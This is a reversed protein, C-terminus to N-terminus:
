SGPPCLVIRVRLGDPTQHTFKFPLFIYLSYNNIPFEPVVAFISHLFLSIERRPPSTHSHPWAFFAYCPESPPLSAGLSDITIEKVFDLVLTETKTDIKQMPNETPWEWCSGHPSVIVLIVSGNGGGLDKVATEVEETWHLGVGTGIHNTRVRSGEYAGGSEAARVDAVEQERQSLPKPAALHRKHAMYAEPTLDSKSTAFLSDTFVASGLSKLLSARTSAYLM